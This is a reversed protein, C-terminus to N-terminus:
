YGSNSQDHKFSPMRGNKWLRAKQPFIKWCNKYFLKFM